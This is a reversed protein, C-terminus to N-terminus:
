IKGAMQQKILNDVMELIAKEWILVVDMTTDKFGFSANMEEKGKVKFTLEFELKEKEGM